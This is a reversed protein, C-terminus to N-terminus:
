VWPHPAHRLKWPLLNQTAFAVDQMWIEDSGSRDGQIISEEAGVM